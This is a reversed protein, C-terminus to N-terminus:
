GPQASKRECLAVWKVIDKDDSTSGTSICDAYRGSELLAKVRLRKRELPSDWCAAKTTHRLVGPWDQMERADRARQRLDKCARSDASASEPEPAPGDAEVKPLDRATKRPKTRPEPETPDAVAVIATGPSEPEPEPEPEPAPEPEPEIPAPEDKVLVPAPAPEVPPPTAAALQAGSDTRLAFWVGIGLVGAALGLPLWPSRRPPVIMRPATVFPAGRELLAHLRQAVEAASPRRKPDSDLCQDVLAVLAAPLDHRRTAVSQAPGSTKLALVEIPESAEFPPTGVLMEHLLVGLAYVDIAPTPRAGKVQEPAMYEPTGIVMGPTTRRSGESAVHAVGFDLVKVVEVGDREVIMVNEAKLDRHIIEREHAAALARAVDRGIAATREVSMGNAERLIEYLERGALHEMVIFPLGSDLEGADLVDVINPHGAASAAQAESRFRAVMQHNGLWQRSLVKVAVPRRVTTHEAWYVEGIAGSGLREGIRYRGAVITGPQLEDLDAADDLEAKL